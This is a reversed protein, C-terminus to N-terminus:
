LAREQKFMVVSIYPHASAKKSVMWFILTKKWYSIKRSIQSCSWVWSIKGSIPETTGAM